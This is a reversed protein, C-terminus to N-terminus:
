EATPVETAPDRDIAAELQPVMTELVYPLSLVSGFSFAGAQLQGMFVERGEAVATLQQRLPHAKIQDNIAPDGSIWILVDRDLRGIEEYSFASYFLDGAIEDFEAPTVFGLEEMLKARSDGSAYAGIQTESLVYSVAAEQGAWEPHAAAAAAIQAEQWPMGFDIYDGSQPLTPAIQSLTAYDAETMGSSLGVILDPELTSIQEFNLEDAALVEPEADGLAPIAWPWTAFPQEGYWDRIGVPQIGLALIPDQDAFGVSVVREPLADITTEGYVHEITVPFASADAGGPSSADGSTAPTASTSAGSGDAVTETAAAVDAEDTAAEGDGSGCAGALLALALAAAVAM